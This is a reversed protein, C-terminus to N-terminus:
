LQRQHSGSLKSRSAARGSMGTGASSSPHPLQASMACLHLRRWLPLQLSNSHLYTHHCHVYCDAKHHPCRQSSLSLLLLSSSSLKLLSPSSLPSLPPSLSSPPLLSSLLLLVVVAIAVTAIAAAIVIIIVIVIVAVVVASDAGHDARTGPGIPPTISQPSTLRKM